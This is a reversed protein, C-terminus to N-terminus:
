FKYQVQFGVLYAMTDYHYEGNVNVGSHTNNMSANSLFMHTYGVDLTWNEHPMASLGLSVLLRDNDPIRATRHEADKIPTMDYALGARLTIAEHVFWDVGLHASFTDKWKEEIAPQNLANEIKLEDFVSWQIYRLTASLGVPSKLKHYASLTVVNPLYMDATTELSMNTLTIDMDGEVGHKVQSRYSLGIRTSEGYATEGFDYMLGITGGFAWTDGSIEIDGGQMHRQTLTVSSNQINATLGLTLGKWINYSVSPALEIVQLESKVASINLLSSDAYKTGLGFPVYVGFGVKLKDNVSYTSFFNPVVAQIEVDTAGTKASVPSIVDGSFNGNLSVITFGAQVGFKDEFLQMGAPNSAIASLDDGVVGIGAFARGMNTVSYENLLYGSAHSKTAYFFSASLLLAVAFLRLFSKM